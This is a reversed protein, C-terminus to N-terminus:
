FNVKSNEKTFLYSQSDSMLPKNQKSIVSNITEMTTELQQLDVRNDLKTNLDEIRWNYNERLDDVKGTLTEIKDGVHNNGKKVESLCEELVRQRGEKETKKLEELNKILKKKFGEEVKLKEKMKAKESELKKIRNELENTRNIKVTVTKWLESNVDLVFGLGELDEFTGKKSILNSNMKDLKQSTRQIKTRPNERELDLIKNLKAFYQTLVKEDAFKKQNQILKNVIMANRNSVKISAQLYQMMVEMQDSFSENEEVKARLNERFTKEQPEKVPLAKGSICMWIQSLDNELGNKIENM